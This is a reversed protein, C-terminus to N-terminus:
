EVWGYREIVHWDEPHESVRETLYTAWEQTMTVVKESRPGEAPVKVVPGFDMVTGWRSRALRRQKGRLREYYSSLPILVTDTALALAAPGPAVRAKQGWVDVVIGSGGLDRDAVLAIVGGHDRVAEVLGRFTASGEHRIVTMGVGERYKVFKQFVREPKLNEAVATVPALHRSCYAGVMDWNGSHGLAVIVRNSKALAEYADADGVMRVRADLTRTSLRPLEIVESYYVATSAMSKRSLHRLAKGELSTVRHLNFELQRVGSGHIVWALWASFGAVLRVVTLPLFRAVQWAVLIGSM